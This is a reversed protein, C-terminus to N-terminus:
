PVKKSCKETKSQHPITELQILAPLSKKDAYIITPFIYIITLLQWHNLAQKRFHQTTIAKFFHAQIPCYKSQYEVNCACFSKQGGDAENQKRTWWLKNWTKSRWWALVQNNSYTYRVILFLNQPISIRYYKWFFFCQLFAFFSIHFSSLEAYIRPIPSSSLRPSSAFFSFVLLTRNCFLTAELERRRQSLFQCVPLLPLFCNPSACFSSSFSTTPSSFYKWIIFILFCAKWPPDSFFLSLLYNREEGGKGVVISRPPTSLFHPGVSLDIVRIMILSKEVFSRM